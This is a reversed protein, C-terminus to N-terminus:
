FNPTASKFKTYRIKIRHPTNRNSTLLKFKIDTEIKSTENLIQHQGEPGGYEQTFTLCLTLYALLLSAM